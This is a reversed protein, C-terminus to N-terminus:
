RGGTLVIREYPELVVDNSPLSGPRPTAFRVRWWQNAPDAVVAVFGAEDGDATHQLTKLHGVSLTRLTTKGDKCPPSMAPRPDCTVRLDAPPERLSLIEQLRRAGNLAEFPRLPSAFANRASSQRGCTVDGEAAVTDSIDGVILYRQKSAITAVRLADAPRGPSRLRARAEPYTGLETVPVICFGRTMSPSFPRGILLLPQRDLGGRWDVEDWAVELVQAAVSQLLIAAVESPPRREAEDRRVYSGAAHVPSAAWAGFLIAGWALKLWPPNRHKNM